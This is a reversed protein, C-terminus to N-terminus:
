ALARLPLRLGVSPAGVNALLCVKRKMQRRM